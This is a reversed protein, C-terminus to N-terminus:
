PTNSQEKGHEDGDNTTRATLAAADHETQRLTNRELDSGVNADSEQMVAHRLMKLTGGGEKPIDDVRQYQSPDILFKIRTVVPTAGKDDDNNVIVAGAEKKLRGM